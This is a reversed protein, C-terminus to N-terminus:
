LGTECHDFGDIPQAHSDFIQIHYCGQINVSPINKPTLDQLLVLNHFNRVRLHDM